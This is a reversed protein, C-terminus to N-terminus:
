LKDNRYAQFLLNTIKEEVENRVDESNIRRLRSVVFDGFIQIDDTEKEKTVNQKKVELATVINNMANSAAKLLSEEENRKRKNTSTRSM